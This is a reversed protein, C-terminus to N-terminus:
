WPLPETADNVITALKAARPLYGIQNVRTSPAAGAAPAPSPSAASSPSPMPPVSEEAGAVASPSSPEADVGAAPAACGFLLLSALMTLWLTQMTTSHISKM